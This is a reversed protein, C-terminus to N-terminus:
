LYVSRPSCCPRTTPRNRRGQRQGGPRASRGNGRRGYSIVTFESALASALTEFHGADGTFGMILLVPPGAACVDYYLEAGNVELQPVVGEM